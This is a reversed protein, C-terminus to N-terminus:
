VGVFGHMDIYNKRRDSQVEEDEPRMFCITLKTLLLYFGFQNLSAEKTIKGVELLKNLANKNFTNMLSFDVVLDEYRPDPLYLLRYHLNKKIDNKNLNLKDIELLPAIVIEDDHDASCTNSIIMGKGRQSAINGMNDIRTFPIGELIDGQALFDYARYNLLNLKKGSMDFQKIAEKTQEKVYPSIAPFLSQTFEIFENLM